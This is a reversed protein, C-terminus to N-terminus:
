YLGLNFACINVSEGLGVGLVGLAILGWEERLSLLGVRSLSFWSYLVAAIEITGVGWILGIPGFYIFGLSGVLALWGIRIMNLHLTVEPRGIGIMLQESAVNNLLLLPSITVIRLLPAVGSYRDDYLVGVIFPAGGIVAGIALSYLVSVLRKRTYYFSKLGILGGQRFIKSYAPYLVRNCYPYVLGRPAVALLTAISYIGFLSLPLM